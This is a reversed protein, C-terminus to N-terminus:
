VSTPNDDTSDPDYKLLWYQLLRICEESDTLATPDSLGRFQLDPKEKSIQDTLYNLRATGQPDAGPLLVCVEDQFGLGKLNMIFAYCEAQRPEEVINMGEWAAPFSGGLVHRGEYIDEHPKLLQERIQQFNPNYTFGYGFEAFGWLYAARLMSITARKIEGISWDLTLAPANSMMIEKIIKVDSPNSRSEDISYRITKDANIKASGTVKHNQYTIRAQVETGVIRMSFAKREFIKTLQSDFRSGQDNNCKKCTLIKRKWGVSAPPVHEETLHDEHDTALDDVTYKRFCIPCMYAGSFEGDKEPHLCHMVMELNASYKKFLELRGAQNM